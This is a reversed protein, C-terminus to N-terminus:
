KFVATVDDVVTGSVMRHVCVAPVDDVMIGSVMGWVCCDIMLWLVLYRGECVATVNDAMTCCVMKM